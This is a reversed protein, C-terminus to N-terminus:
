DKQAAMSGVNLVVAKSSWCTATAYFYFYSGYISAYLGLNKPFKKFKFNPAPPRSIRLGVNLLIKPLTCAM